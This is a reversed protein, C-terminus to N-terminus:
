GAPSPEVVWIYNGDPDRLSFMTPAGPMSRPEEDLDVSGVATLRRHEGVVDPTEVGISGGGASGSMPPNLSLSATSGPPAVELWRNEGEAGFRVDKRVEWGLKETYFTVAADVDTVSFMTVAIGTVTTPTQTTESMGRLRRSRASSM